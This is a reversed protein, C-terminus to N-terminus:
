GGLRRITLGWDMKVEIELPFFPFEEEWDLQAWIRPHYARLYRGVGLIDVGLDQAKTITQQIEERVKASVTAEM